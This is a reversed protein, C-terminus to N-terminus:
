QKLLASLEQRESKERNISAGGRGRSGEFGCGVRRGEEKAHNLEDAQEAQISAAM